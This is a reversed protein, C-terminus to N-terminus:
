AISRFRSLRTSLSSLLSVIALPCDGWCLGWKLLIPITMQHNNREAYYRVRSGLLIVSSRFIWRDAIVWRANSLEVIAAAVLPLPLARRYGRPEPSFLARRHPDQNPRGLRTCASRKAFSGCVRRSARGILAAHGAATRTVCASVAHLGPENMLVRTVAVAAGLFNGEGYKGVRV